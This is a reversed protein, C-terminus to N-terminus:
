IFNVTIFNCLTSILMIYHIFLSLTKGSAHAHLVTKMRSESVQLTKLFFEKCVEKRESNNLHYAWSYGRNKSTPQPKKSMIEKRDILGYLFTDQVIKDGLEWFSKFIEEQIEKPFFIHCNKKCCKGIFSFVKKPVKKGSCSAYSEGRNRKAKNQVRKWSDRQLLRKKGKNERKPCTDENFSDTSESEDTEQDFM